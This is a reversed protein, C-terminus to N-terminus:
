AQEKELFDRIRKILKPINVPSVFYEDVGEQRYFKETEPDNEDTVIFFPINNDAKSRVAQIIGSVNRIEKLLDFASGDRFKLDCLVLEIERDGAIRMMAEYVSSVLILNYGKELMVARLVEEQKEPKHVFLLKHFSQNEKASALYSFEIIKDFILQHQMKDFCMTVGHQQAEEEYLDMFHCSMIFFPVAQDRARVYKLLDIGTGDPLDLDSSILLPMERDIVAKAEEITEAMVVQYRRQQLWHKLGLIYTSDDDILLIKKM